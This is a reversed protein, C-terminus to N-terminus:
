KRLKKADPTPADDRKLKKKKKGSREDPSTGPNTRSPPATRIKMLESARM